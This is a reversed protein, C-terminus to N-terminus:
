AGQAQGCIVFMHPLKLHEPESKGCIGCLASLTSETGMALAGALINKAHTARAPYDSDLWLLASNISLRLQEIEMHAAEPNSLCWEASGFEEETYPM